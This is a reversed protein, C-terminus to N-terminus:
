TLISIVETFVASLSGINKKSKIKKKCYQKGNDPISYPDSNIYYVKIEKMRIETSTYMIM